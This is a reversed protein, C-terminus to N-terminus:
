GVEEIDFKNIEWTPFTSVQFLDEGRAAKREAKQTSTTKLKPKKQCLLSRTEAVAFQLRYREPQRGEAKSLARSVTFGAKTQIEVVGKREELSPPNIWKATTMTHIM